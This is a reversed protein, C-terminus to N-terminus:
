LKSFFNDKIYRENYLLFTLMLIRYNFILYTIYQTSYSLIINIFFFHNTVQTSTGKQSSEPISKTLKIGKLVNILAYLCNHSNYSSSGYNNVLIKKNLGFMMM